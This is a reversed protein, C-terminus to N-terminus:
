RGYVGPSQISNGNMYGNSNNMYGSQGNISNGHMSRVGPAPQQYWGSNYHRGMGRHGCGTLLIAAASILVFMMLAKM